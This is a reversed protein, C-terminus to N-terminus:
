RWEESSRYTSEDERREMRRKVATVEDKLGTVKKRIRKLEKM